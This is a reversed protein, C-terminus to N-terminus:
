VGAVATSHGEPVALSAAWRAEWRAVLPAAFSTARVNAFGDSSNAAPIDAGPAAFMVQPGREAEFIVRRRADLATVGVVGPYAAPYLPPAAPGDYGM